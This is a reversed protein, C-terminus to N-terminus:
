KQGGNPSTATKRPQDERTSNSSDSAPVNVTKEIETLPLVGVAYVFQGKTYTREIAVGNLIGPSDISYGKEKLLKLINGRARNAAAQRALSIDRSKRAKGVAKVVQEEGQDFIGTEPEQADTADAGGDTVPELTEDPQTKPTTDQPPDLPDAKKDCGSVSFVGIVFITYFFHIRRHIGLDLHLYTNMASWYGM